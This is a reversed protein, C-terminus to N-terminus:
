VRTINGTLHPKGRNAGHLGFTWGSADEHASFAVRSPLLVPARFHVDVVFADPLRGELAALCRAKTWMGHAIARPFGFARAALRSLHIPNRDGSVAAYRRGIDAPVRWLASAPPTERRESRGAGSRGGSRRLYTSVDRWVVETGVLAEAVVDFQQGREHPRLDVARVRLTHEEDVRLPRVQTIQNRVHVLGPLPFPFSPDAMLRVALPFAVVHPYTAPLEDRLRFGCVRAYAALHEVDVPVAPLELASDPLDRSRRRLRPLVARRYLAGLEPARALTHTAM